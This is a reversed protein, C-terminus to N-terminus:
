DYIYLPNRKLSRGGRFVLRVTRLKTRRAPRIVGARSPLTSEIPEPQVEADFVRGRMEIQVVDEAPRGAADELDAKAVAFRQYELVKGRRDPPRVTFTAAVKRQHSRSGIWWTGVRDPQRVCVWEYKVRMYGNPSLCFTRV